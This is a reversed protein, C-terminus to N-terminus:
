TSWRRRGPRYTRRFPRSTRSSRAQPDPRSRRTRRPGARRDPMLAPDLQDVAPGFVAILDRAGPLSAPALGTRRRDVAFRGADAAPSVAASGPVTGGAPLGFASPTASGSPTSSAASGPGNGPNAGPQDPGVIDNGNAEGAYPAIKPLAAPVTGGRLAAKAGEIGYLGDYVKRVMPGAAKAGVGGQEIEGVVVFRPADGPSWSSFWGTDQKGYVQATGTKAAVSHQDLPFGGFMVDGSPSLGNGFILSQKIYTLVQQPVPLRRRVKPVIRRVVKGQPNVIAKGITPEFVRGGNLMASYAVAEQLPSVTTDGQGIAMNAADGPQFVYGARCNDKALQTFYKRDASNPVDPYGRKANACYQAKNAKWSALKQARGVITGASQEGAPLDINPTSGFGYARAMAQIAEVPKKGEAIRRQDAQWGALAFKYFFTDCSYALAKALTIQGPLSESDYNTKLENGVQLAPPCAATQDLSLQGDTTIASATALKFTSGPALAGDTARSVLPTGAAPNTLADYAKQSIGGIFANPDYDPYSAAAILRGTNPDMVVVAGSPAKYNTGQGPGQQADVTNRLAKIQDTLARQALRQVNVDLSTVLTDGAVPATTSALGTVLGRNDVAFSRAGDRGRLAADYSQELGSRGVLDESSYSPNADLESQTVPGIYGVEQGATSRQPYRRVAQSDVQVDPYNERRESIALVQAASAGSLIPVPAYPSGTWCPKPVHPACATIEASITAAPQGILKALRAIVPRGGDSRQRLQNAAVSIVMTTRNGALVKGTDDVIQGRPAAISISRLHQSNATQQLNTRDATQLYALRALLTVVLAAVIAGLVALRLRSNDAM